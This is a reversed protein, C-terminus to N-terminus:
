FLKRDKLLKQLNIKATIDGPMGINEGEIYICTLFILMLEYIESKSYANKLRDISIDITIYNEFYRIGLQLDILITHIRAKHKEYYTWLTEGDNILLAKYLFQFDGYFKMIEFKLKDKNIVLHAYYCIINIFDQQSNIEYFRSTPISCYEDDCKLDIWNLCCIKSNLENTVFIFNPINGDHLYNYTSSKIRLPECMNERYKIQLGIMYPLVENSNQKTLQLIADHGYDRETINRLIWDAPLIASLRDIAIKEKIHSSSRIPYM